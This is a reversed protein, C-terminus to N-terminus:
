NKGMFILKNKRFILKQNAKRNGSVVLLIMDHGAIVMVRLNILAQFSILIVIIVVFIVIIFIAIFARKEFAYKRNFPGFFKFGRLFWIKKTITLVQKHPNGLPSVTISNESQMNITAIIYVCLCVYTYHQM